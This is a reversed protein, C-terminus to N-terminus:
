QPYIERIMELNVKGLLNAKCTAVFITGSRDVVVIMGKKEGQVQTKSILIFSTYDENEDAIRNFAYETEKYCANLASADEIESMRRSNQISHHKYLFKSFEEVKETKDTKYAVHMFENEHVSSKNDKSHEIVFIELTQIEEIAQLVEGIAKLDETEIQDTNSM